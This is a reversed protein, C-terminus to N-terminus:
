SENNDGEFIWYLYYHKDSLAAPFNTAHWTLIKNTSSIFGPGVCGFKVLYKCHEAQLDRDGNEYCNFEITIEDCIGNHRISGCIKVHKGSNFGNIKTCTMTYKIKNLIDNENATHIIHFKHTLLDIHDDMDREPDILTRIIDTIYYSNLKKFM